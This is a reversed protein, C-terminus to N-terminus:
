IKKLVITRNLSANIKEFFTKIEKYEEKAHRKAFIRINQNYKLKGDEFEVTSTYIGYPTTLTVNEPLSEPAYGEPISINISDIENCGEYFAIDLERKASTFIKYNGKNIPCVPVFLRNNSKNTFDDATFDYNIKIDPSASKNINSTINQIKVKALKMNRILYDTQEKTNNTEFLRAVEPYENLYNDILAKGTANGDESLSINLTTISKNLNEPYSPLRCLKGGNDSIILVDNGAIGDHIFGFPISNSTCELWVTDKELPVGLIVHNFQNFNPFDSFVQKERSDYKIVSYISPINVANLMAKMLNSLGKCDSFGTKQVEAASTPRFGGIGLQISIYRTNAQLYEYLIKVKERDTQANATLARIKETFEPSLLDRGKLLESVWKGYNNWDSMNGCFGDYCFKSPAFMVYPAYDTSLPAAPEYNVAKFGNIECSYIKKGNIEQLNVDQNCNLQKYRLSINAPVEIYYSASQISQSYDNIPAFVPYSM